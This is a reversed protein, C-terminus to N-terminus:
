QKKLKINLTEALKKLNEKLKQNHKSKKNLGINVKQIIERDM